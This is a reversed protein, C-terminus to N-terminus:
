VTVYDVRSIIPIINSCSSRIRGWQNTSIHNADPIRGSTRQIRLTFLNPASAKNVGIAKNKDYLATKSFIEKWLHFYSGIGLTKRWLRVKSTSSRAPLKAVPYVYSPLLCIICLTELILQHKESSLFCFCVFLNCVALFFLLRELYSAQKETEERGNFNVPSIWNESIVSKEMQEICAVNRM